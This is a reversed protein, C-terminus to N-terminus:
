PVDGNQRLWTRLLSQLRQLTPRHAVDDSLDHLEHPDQQLDFLQQRGAKPYNVYKWLEDCIMRQTDTYSGIIFEHIRETKRRLLPALSRGTVTAPITLGSLDCLTPFLDYLTVLATSRANIPLGPGSIILPSRITHEYQNQKGLLGHSGLALGQDSTFIILTDDISPLANLIRGLQEDLDTIMAYYLALEERVAEATRPTPLLLEDRGHLNGHDFPHQAAFNAPLPIQSALYSNEKNAPWQRPDHPFAFNVHLLWPQDKPATRLVRIAGDAIHRSNDAQLGVGKELEPKNQDEKFTWGRYGTLPRGRADTEPQKQNGGSGGSSFLASTTAYGRQTPHGDNHWKGTFVTHYGAAQFTRALTALKPDIEGAPYKALARFAHTGTLMQARSVQCIPYGSYARSFSTGQATLRDLNPTHIVANGLAHITDPRQDDSVIFLINPKPADAAHLAALPAVLLATLLTLTSKMTLSGKSKM